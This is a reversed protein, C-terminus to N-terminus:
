TGNFELIVQDNQRVLGGRTVLLKAKVLRFRVKLSLVFTSADLNEKSKYGSIGGLRNEDEEVQVLKATESSQRGM